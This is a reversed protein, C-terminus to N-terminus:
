WGNSGARGRGCTVSDRFRPKWAMTNTCLHAPLQSLLARWPQALSNLSEDPAKEVWLRLQVALQRGWEKCGCPCECVTTRERNTNRRLRM